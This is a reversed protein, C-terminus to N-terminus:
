KKCSPDNNPESLVKAYAQEFTDGKNMYYNVAGDCGPWNNLKYIFGQAYGRPIELPCKSRDCAGAPSEPGPPQYWYDNIDCTRKEFVMKAHDVNYCATEDIDDYKLGISKDDQGTQNDHRVVLLYSGPTVHIQSTEKAKINHEWYTKRDKGNVLYLAMGYMHNYKAEGRTRIHRVIKVDKLGDEIVLPNGLKGYEKNWIMVNQPNDPDYLYRYENKRIYGGPDQKVCFSIPGEMSAPKDGKAPSWASSYGCDAIENGNVCNASNLTSGRCIAIPCASCGPTDIGKPQVFRASQFFWAEECHTKDEDDSLVFQNCKNDNKGCSGFIGTQDNPICVRNNKEYNKAQVLSMCQNTPFIGGPFLFHKITNEDGCDARCDDGTYKIKGNPDPTCTRTCTNNNLTYTYVATNSLCAKITCTKGDWTGSQAYQPLQEPTCDSPKPKPCPDDSSGDSCTTFLCYPKTPDKALYDYVYNANPDPYTNRKSNPSLPPTNKDKPVCKKGVNNPACFQASDTPNPWVTYNVNCSTLFCANDGGDTTRLTYTNSNIAPVNSEPEVFTKSNITINYPLLGSSTLNCNTPAPPGPDPGPTNYVWTYDNTYDCYWPITNAKKPPNGCKVTADQYSYPGYDDTCVPVQPFDDSKGWNSNKVPDTYSPVDITNPISCKSRSMIYVISGIAALILFLLGIM